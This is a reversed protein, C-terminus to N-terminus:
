VNQFLAPSHCVSLHILPCLSSSCCCCQVCPHVVIFISLLCLTVLTHLTQGTNQETACSYKMLCIVSEVLGTVDSMLRVICSCTVSHMSSMINVKRGQDYSAMQKMSSAFILWRVAVFSVWPPMDCRELSYIYMYLLCQCTVLTQANHCLYIFSFYYQSLLQIIQCLYWCFMTRLDPASGFIHKLTSIPMIIDRINCWSTIVSSVEKASLDEPGQCSLPCCSNAM